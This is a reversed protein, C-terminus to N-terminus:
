GGMADTGGRLRNLSAALAVLPTNPAPLRGGAYSGQAGYNYPKSAGIPKSALLILSGKLYGKYQDLSFPDISGGARVTGSYGPCMARAMLAVSSGQVVATNREAIPDTIMIPSTFARFNDPTWSRRRFWTM